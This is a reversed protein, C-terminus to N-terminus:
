NGGPKGGGGERIWWEKWLDIADGFDRGTCAVLARRCAIRLDQRLAAVAPDEKVPISTIVRPIVLGRTPPLSAGPLTGPPSAPRTVTGGPIVIPGPPPISGAGGTTLSIEPPGQLSAELSALLSPVARREPFVALGDAARIRATTNGRQFLELFAAGAAPDKLAALATMAASRVKAADDLVARRALPAVSRADGATALLGASAARVAPEGAALGELAPLRADEPPFAALRQRADERLAPSSSLAARRLLNRIEEHVARRLESSRDLAARVDREEPTIWQGQVRVRGKAQQAEEFTMWRGDVAEHGLARHAEECGPDLAVAKEYEARAPAPLKRERCWAALALHGAVDDDRLAAAQRAYRDEDSPATEVRLVRRKPLTMTVPGREVRLDDGLDTVRGEITTGDALHVVDAAAPLFPFALLASLAPRLRAPRSRNPM